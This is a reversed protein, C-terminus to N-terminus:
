GTLSDEAFQIIPKTTDVIEITQSATNKLFLFDATYNVTNLGLESFNIKTDATTKLPIDVFAFLENKLHGQPQSSLVNQPYEIVEHENYPAFEIYLYSLFAGTIIFVIVFIGLMFLKLNIKKAPQKKPEIAM